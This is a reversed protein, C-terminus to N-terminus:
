PDPDHEPKHEKWCRGDIDKLLLNNAKKSKLPVYLDNKLSLFDYLLWLVTSILIKKRSKNSSVLLIRIRIQVILSPDPLDLFM